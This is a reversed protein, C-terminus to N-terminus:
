PKRRPQPSSPPKRVDSDTGRKAERRPKTLRPAVSRELEDYTVPELWSQVRRGDRDFLFTAPLAGGWRPDLGDILKMDDDRKLYVPADLPGTLGARAAAEALLTAIAGRADEDDASLLVLRLGAARHARYFRLLDPMEERCPDCWTAWVNLLVLPARAARIDALIASVTAGRVPPSARPRPTAAVVRGATAGLLALAVAWASGGRAGLRAGAPGRRAPLQM